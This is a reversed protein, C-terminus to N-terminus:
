QYGEQKSFFKKLILRLSSSKSLGNENGYKELNQITKEDIYLCTPKGLKKEKM